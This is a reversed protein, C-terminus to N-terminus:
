TEADRVRRVADASSINQADASRPAAGVAQRWGGRIGGPLPSIDTIQTLTAKGEYRTYLGEVVVWTKREWYTGLNSRHEKGPYCRVHRQTYADQLTFNTGRKDDLTVIQGKVASRTRPRPAAEEVTQEAPPLEGLRRDLKAIAPDDPTGMLIRPIQGNVVSTIAQMAERVPDSFRDIQGRNVAHLLAEYRTVVLDATERDEPSGAVARSEITASGFRLDSVVWEVAADGNAEATLTLMLDTFADIVTRFDAVTVKGDIKIIVSDKAM